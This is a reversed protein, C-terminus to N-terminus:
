AWGRVIFNGATSGNVNVSSAAQLHVATIAVGVINLKQGPALYDSGANTAAGIEYLINVTTNNALLIETVTAGANWGISVDTNVGTTAPNSGSLAVNARSGSQTLLNAGSFSLKDLQTLIAALNGGSELALASTNLNTGANATVSGVISTLLDGGSFNLKNLQTLIAALNGGSELALGSTTWGTGANSTVTGGGGGGGGGAASVILDNTALLSVVVANAQGSTVARLNPRIGTLDTWNNAAISFTGMDGLSLTLANASWLYLYRRDKYDLMISQTDSIALTALIPPKPKLLEIIEHFTALKENHQDTTCM